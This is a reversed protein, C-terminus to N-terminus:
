RCEGASAAEPPRPPEPPEALSLALRLVTRPVAALLVAAAVVAGGSGCPLRGAHRQVVLPVLALLVCFLVLRRGARRSEM